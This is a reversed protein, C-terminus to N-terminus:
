GVMLKIDEWLVIAMHSYNYQIKYLERKRQTSQTSHVLYSLDRFCFYMLHIHITSALSPSHLTSFYYYNYIYILIYSRVVFQLAKESGFLAWLWLECSSADKGTREWEERTREDEWKGKARLKQINVVVNVVHSGSIDWQRVVFTCSQTCHPQLFDNHIWIKGKPM